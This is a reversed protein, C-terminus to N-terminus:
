NNNTPLKSFVKEFYLNFEYVSACMMNECRHATTLHDKKGSKRHKLTYIRWADFWQQIDRAYYACVEHGSVQIQRSLELFTSYTEKYSLLVIM